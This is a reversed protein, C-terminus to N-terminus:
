RTWAHGPLTSGAAQVGVLRPLHDIWGLALLDRFGKDCGASSAATASPLWSGDPVQWGLQECIEYVVTKKGESM